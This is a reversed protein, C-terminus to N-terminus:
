YPETRVSANLICTSIGYFRRRVEHAPPFSSSSSSSPDVGGEEPSSSSGYHQAEAALSMDALVAIRDIGEQLVADYRDTIGSVGYKVRLAADLIWPALNPPSISVLLLILDWSAQLSKLSPCAASLLSTLSDIIM